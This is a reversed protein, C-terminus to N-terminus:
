ALAAILQSKTLKSYNKVRGSALKKLHRISCHQYLGATQAVPSPRFGSWKTPTVVITKTAIPALQAKPRRRDGIGKAIHSFFAASFYVLTLVATTIILATM